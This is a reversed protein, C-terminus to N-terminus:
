KFRPDPNGGLDRTLSHTAQVVTHLPNSACYKELYAHVTPEDPPTIAPRVLLNYAALNGWVWQTFLRMQQNDLGLTRRYEIYNGCGLTGVGIIPVEAGQQAQLSLSALALATAALKKM